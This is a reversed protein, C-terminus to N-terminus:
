YGKARDLVEANLAHEGSGLRALWQLYWEDTACLYGFHRVAATSEAIQFSEILETTRQRTKTESVPMFMSDRGVANEVDHRVRFYLSERLIRLGDTLCSVVRTGDQRNEHRNFEEAAEALWNPSNKHPM